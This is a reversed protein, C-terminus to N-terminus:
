LEGKMGRQRDLYSTVFAEIAEESIKDMGRENMVSQYNRMNDLLVITPMRDTKSVGFQEMVTHTTAPNGVYGRVLDVHRKAVRWVSERMQVWQHPTAFVFLKIFRSNFVNNM